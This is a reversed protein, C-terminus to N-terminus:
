KELQAIIQSILAQASKFQYKNIFRNLDSVKQHYAEPWIYDVIEKMLEKCPKAERNLIFPNLKLLLELLVDTKAESLEVTKQEKGSDAELISSISDLLIMLAQNFPKILAETKTVEKEIVAIELESTTRELDNAGISGAVGKITHILQQVQETDHNDLADKVKSAADAYDRHFKALLNMYLVRNGLARALGTKVEIGPMDKLPKDDKVEIKLGIKSPIDDSIIREGPNIWALLTSFLEHPNIPKTIHQNMGAELSREKDGTMAHATMAIIPLERFRIDKRIERTAQHGDMVPMQVDMLVADFKRERVMNVAERGDNAITVSFGVEQLIEQALLQNIENDEVLLIKAGQISKLKQIIKDESLRPRVLEFTDRSYTQIITDFLTSPNFPKILYGELGIQDAQQVIKERGYASVMIITPINALVPHNKIRKSAELGSMVPMKWDMLVLGYRQQEATKELEKLGDEANGVLTVNKFGFSALMAKLADRSTASDDVVLIRMGKIGPPPELRKEPTKESRGFTATLFFCSGQGVASEAWIKGGMMEVLRKCIVRGLGTGGYKRTTSTDAQTFPQFLKDIQAKSMGIGTDKVSFQLTTQSNSQEFLETSLVIEGQETFKIANDCLNILVQGLRLADGILFPSVRPDLHLIVELNEKDQTKAIIINAVNDLTESLSFDVHEIDLKGSEIKSFDLIDNIVGLLSKASTEIRKLYDYQKPSLDTKLALYTMGIVANMPTRIEHSMNALFDSKAQTAAEAAEKAIRLQSAQKKETIDEMIGEYYRINDNEDRIAHINLSVDIAKGDKRYLQTEFGKVSEMNELLRQLKIRDDSNVYLQSRIDTIHEIVEEPSAYGMIHAFAPNVTLFRGKDDATTQYIGITAKEFISRYKEEAKKIEEQSEHLEISMENFAVGMTGIEDRFPFSVTEGLHGKQIKNIANHLLSVPRIVFRSLMFNLLASMLILTTLLLTLFIIVSLRTEKILAEFDYYIEIFGIKQGIVEIGRSYIGLSKGKYSTTELSTSSTDLDRHQGKFYDSLAADTSLFLTGDPKYISVAAIGEVKLIDKLTLALARKQDAFIENAFDEYKQQFITDLLLEIKKVHSDHRRIEFPYLIAGFIIAIVLCTVFIAINIKFRLSKYKTKDM